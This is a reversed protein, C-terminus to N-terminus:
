APSPPARPASHSRDARRRVAVAARGPPLRLREPASPAVSRHPVPGTCARAYVCAPCEGAVHGSSGCDCAEADLHIGLPSADDHPVVRTGADPGELHHCTHMSHVAASLSALYVCLAITIARCRGAAFMPHVKM